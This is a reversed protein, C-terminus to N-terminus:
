EEEAQGADGGSETCLRVWDEEAATGQSSYGDPGQTGGCKNNKPQWLDLSGRGRPVSTLRVPQKFDTSVVPPLARQWGYFTRYMHLTLASGALSVSLQSHDWCFGRSAPRGQGVVEEQALRSDAELWREQKEMRFAMEGWRFAM